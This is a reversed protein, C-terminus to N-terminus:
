SSAVKTFRCRSREATSVSVLGASREGPSDASTLYDLADPKECLRGRWQDIREASPLAAPPRAPSGGMSHYGLYGDLWHLPDAKILAGNPKGNKLAGVVEAVARLYEGGLSKCSLSHCNVQWLWEGAYQGRTHLM